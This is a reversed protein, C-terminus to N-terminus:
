AHDATGGTRGTPHGEVFSLLPSEDVGAAVLSTVGAEKATFGTREACAPMFVYEFVVLVVEIVGESVVVDGVIERDVGPREIATRNRSEFKALFM